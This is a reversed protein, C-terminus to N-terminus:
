AADLLADMDPGEAEDEGDDDLWARIESRQADTGERLFHALEAETLEDVDVEVGRAGHCDCRGDDSQDCEGTRCPRLVTFTPPKSM